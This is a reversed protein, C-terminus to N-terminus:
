GTPLEDVLALNEGRAARVLETDLTALPLGDRGALELYSADYVTLRHHRALRLLEAEDPSHDLTVGLRSLDRLFGATDAEGIRGRRENVLLVNRVEFWWLSPVRAEDTRIRELALAATPHDENAFAWSAAISADLVFPM